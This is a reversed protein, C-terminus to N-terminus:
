RPELVHIARSAVIAKVKEGFAAMHPAAGHAKLADLDRWKEIVVVTDPGLPAFSGAHDVAPGYEICGDEARVAALNAQIAALLADRQGPTAEIIAVVHLV